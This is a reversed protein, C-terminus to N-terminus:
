IELSSVMLSRRGKLKHLQDDYRARQIKTKPNMWLVDFLVHFTKTYQNQLSVVVLGHFIIATVTRIQLLFSFSAATETTHNRLVLKKSKKLWKKNMM